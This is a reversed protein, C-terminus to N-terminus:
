SSLPFCPAKVAPVPIFMTDPVVVAVIDAISAVEVAFPIICNVFSKPPVAATGTTFLTPPTDDVVIVVNGVNIVELVFEIVAFVALIVAFVNLMVLLVFEMVAFVALIVAFVNLMVLLVFEMVAFVALIVVIAEDTFEAVDDFVDFVITLRSPLPPKAAPNIVAVDKVDDPLIEDVDTLVPVIVDVESTVFVNLTVPPLKVVVPATKVLSPLPLAVHFLLPNYVNFPIVAADCVNEVVVAAVLV